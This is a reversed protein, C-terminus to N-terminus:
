AGYRMTGVGGSWVTICAVAVYYVRTSVPELRHRRRVWVLHVHVAMLLLGGWKLLGPTKSIPTYRPRRDTTNGHSGNRRSRASARRTQVVADM